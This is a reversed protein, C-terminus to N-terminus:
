LNNIQIRKPSYNSLEEILETASLTLSIVCSAGENLFGDLIYQKVIQNRKTSLDGTFSILKGSLDPLTQDLILPAAM